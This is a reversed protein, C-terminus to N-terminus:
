KPKRLWWSPHPKDPILNLDLGHEAVFANVADITPQYEACYDHGAFIGGPKLKQWWERLTQGGLQGTHAYGDIYILDAAEQPFYPAADTFTARMVQGGMMEILARAAAYEEGDHHDSWRDVGIYHAAPNAQMLEVAFRGRAVGLEIMTGGPPVLQALDSRTKPTM